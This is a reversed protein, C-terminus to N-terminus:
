IASVRRASIPEALYGRPALSGGSVRSHSRKSADRNVTRSAILFNAESFNTLVSCPAPVM